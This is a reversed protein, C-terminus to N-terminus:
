EEAETPEFIGTEPSIQLKLQRNTSVRRAIIAQRTRDEMTEAHYDCNMCVRGYPQWTQRSRHTKESRRMVRVYTTYIFPGQCQPCIM